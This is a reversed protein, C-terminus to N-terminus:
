IVDHKVYRGYSGIRVVNHLFGGAFVDLITIFRTKSGLILDGSAITTLVIHMDTRHKTKM